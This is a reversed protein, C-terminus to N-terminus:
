HEVLERGFKGVHGIRQRPYEALLAGLAQAAVLHFVDDEAAGIRALGGASRFHTETEAVDDDRGRQQFHHALLHVVRAPPLSGFRRVLRHCDLGELLEMIYYFTGDESVGFDYLDVTHASTLSATTRAELEFRQTMTRSAEASTM